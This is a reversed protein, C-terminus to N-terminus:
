PQGPGRGQATGGLALGALLSLGQGVANDIRSQPRACFLTLPNEPGAPGPALATAPPPTQSRLAVQPAPALGNLRVYLWSLATCNLLDFGLTVSQFGLIGASIWVVLRRSDM